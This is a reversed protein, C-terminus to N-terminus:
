TASSEQRFTEIPWGRASLPALLREHPPARWAFCRFGPRAIALLSRVIFLCSSLRFRFSSSAAGADDDRCSALCSRTRFSGMGTYERKAETRDGTISAVANIAEDRGAADDRM